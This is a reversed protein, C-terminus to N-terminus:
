GAPSRMEANAVPRSRPMLSGSLAMGIAGVRNKGKEYKQIQQFTVGIKRGLEGQSWGKHLRCTRINRGVLLDTPLPGRTTM